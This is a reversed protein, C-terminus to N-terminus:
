LVCFVATVRTENHNTFIESSRNPFFIFDVIWTYMYKSHGGAKTDRYGVQGSIRVFM